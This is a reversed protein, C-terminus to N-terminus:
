FRFRAQFEVVRGALGRTSRGFNPNTIIAGEDFFRIPQLNLQNFINFFNARLELNAQEGL